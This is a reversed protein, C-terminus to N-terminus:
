EPVEVVTVSDGSTVGNVGKGINNVLQPALQYFTLLILAAAIYVGATMAAEKLGGQDGKKLLKLTAMIGGVLLLVVIITPAIAEYASILFGFTSTEADEAAFVALAANHFM